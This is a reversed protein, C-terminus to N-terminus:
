SQEIKVCTCVTLLRWMCLTCLRDVRSCILSKNTKIAWWQLYGDYFIGLWELMIGLGLPENATMVAHSSKSGPLGRTYPSSCCSWSGSRSPIWCGPAWSDGRGRVWVVWHPWVLFITWLSKLNIEYVRCLCSSSIPNKM